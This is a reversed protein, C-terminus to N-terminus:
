KGFDGAFIELCDLTGAIVDGMDDGAHAFKVPAPGIGFVQGLDVDVLDDAFDDVEGARAPPVQRLAFAHRDLDLAIEIRVRRIQQAIRAIQALRQDVQNKVRD